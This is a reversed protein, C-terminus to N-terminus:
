SAFASWGICHEGGTAQRRARSGRHLRLPPRRTPHPLQWHLHTALDAPAFDTPDMGPERILRGGDSGRDVNRDRGACSEGRCCRKSMSTQDLDFSMTLNHDVHGATKTGLCPVNTTCKHHPPLDNAVGITAIHHASYTAGFRRQCGFCTPCHHSYGPCRPRASPVGSHFVCDTLRRYHM